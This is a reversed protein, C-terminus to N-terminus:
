YILDFELLNFLILSIVFKKEENIKFISIILTLIFIILDLYIILLNYFSEALHGKNSFNDIIKIKSL